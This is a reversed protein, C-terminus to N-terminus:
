RGVSFRSPTQRGSSASGMGVIDKAVANAVALIIKQAARGLSSQGSMGGWVARDKEETSFHKVVKANRGGTIFLRCKTGIPRSHATDILVRTIAFGSFLEHAEPSTTEM